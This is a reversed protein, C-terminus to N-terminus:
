DASCTVVAYRGTSSNKAAQHGDVLIRCTITGGGSNQATLTYINSSSDSMKFTKKWPLRASTVQSINFGETAYTISARGSRSTIEYVVTVKGDDPELEEPTQCGILVAPWKKQRPAQDTLIKVDDASVAYEGFCIWGSGDSLDVVEVQYNSGSKDAYKAMYDVVAARAVKASRTSIQLTTMPEDTWVTEIRYGTPSRQPTAPPTIPPEFTTPAAPTVPPATTSLAALPVAHDDGSRGAAVTTGATLLVVTVTGALLASAAVVAERDPLDAIVPLSGLRKEV